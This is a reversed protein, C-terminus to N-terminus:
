GQPLRQLALEALGPSAAALLFPGSTGARYTRGGHSVAGGLESVILSGALHDWPNATTYGLVDLFGEALRVYDVACAGRRRVFRFGPAEPRYLNRPVAATWPAQPEPRRPVREDNCTVGGGEEAVWMQDHLPLWIWGRVPRGFRTEAVMVGFDPRGQVFNRTGDVPDIVWAHEAEPLAELLEPRTFVAEEGVVLADPHADRLAATLVVEAQRNAVTVLDGPRKQEIDGDALSRFRPLIEADCVEVILENVRRTLM